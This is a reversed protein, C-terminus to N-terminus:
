FNIFCTQSKWCFQFSQCDFGTMGDSTGKMTLFLSMCFGTLQNAIVWRIFHPYNIIIFLYLYNLKVRNLIPPTWFTGVVGGGSGWGRLLKEGAVEVFTPILRWFKRVKLKLGKAVSSYFTLNMGLTLGLNNFKFCSWREFFTTKRTM